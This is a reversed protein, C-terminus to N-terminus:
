KAAWGTNGTGTQKVYLTSGVGGDTRLFLSGVVATIAAEPSGTGTIIQPGSNLTLRGNDTIRLRETVANTGIATTGFVWYAGQAADTWTEAAYGLLYVRAGNSFQTSGYGRIGYGGLTTGSTVATPSAKSGLATRCVVNAAVGYGDLLMLPLSGGTESLHLQAIPTPENIGVASGSVTINSDGLTTSATFQPLTGTTGSGGMSGATASLTTGTMTLGSGVTIEEPSGAGAASGRGLLKSAAAVNQIKAYTVVGPKVTLVTGAFTVVIDGWDGDTLAGSASLTTGTLNLNAGIAIQEMPGVGSLSGRGLLRMASSVNQIKAYTVAGADIDATAVTSKTALAGLGLVIRAAAADVAAILSRGWSTFVALAAAGLGTFYPVRDAASTLGAIATLEADLPQKGALDPVTWISGGGSVVVDGKDGDTVGTGGTDPPIVWGQTPAFELAGLDVSAGTIRVNGRVVQQGSTDFVTMRYFTGAPTIGDNGYISYPGAGPGSIEGDTLAFVVPDGSALLVAGPNFTGAQSLEFWLSGSVPNGEPDLFVGSLTTM